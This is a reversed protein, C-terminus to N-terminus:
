NGACNTNYFKVIDYVHRKKFDKNEIKQVLKPCDKFFKPGVTKLSSDAFHDSSLLIVEDDDEKKVYHAVITQQTMGMGPGMPNSNFSSTSIYLSVPGLIEEELLLYENKWKVKLFRFKTEDNLNNKKKVYDVESYHLKKPDDSSHNKILLHDEDQKALVAKSSGDKLKITSLQYPAGCSYILTFLVIIPISNLTRLKM